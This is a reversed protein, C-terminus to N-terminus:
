LIYRMKGPIVGRVGGSPDDMDGKYRPIVHCHFHMVTQGAFEGCNMGINYGEPNHKTEIIEKAKLICRHLESQEIPSLEFYDTKVENSIILLHGPSVPFSDQIIFFYEDKYLVKEKPISSFDKM